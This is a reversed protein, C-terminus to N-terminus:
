IYSPITLEFSVGQKKFHEKQTANLQEVLSTVLQTGMSKKKKRPTNDSEIANNKTEKLMGIGNDQYIISYHNENKQLSISIINENESSPFAYKLSNTIWENLILGLPIAKDVNIRVKPITINAQIQNEKQYLRFLFQQLEKIYEDLEVETLLDTQYLKEHILTMTRIRSQVDQIAHKATPEELRRAQISLLSGIIQLNNKVRHHLESLLTQIANNKTELLQKKKQNQYFLVALGSLLLIILGIFFILIRNFQKEKQIETEKQQNEKKLTQNEFEKQQNGFKAEMTALQNKSEENFLSDRIMQYEKQHFFAKEFNNQAAYIDALTKHATQLREANQLEKISKYGEQAYKLAELLQNKELYLNALNITTGAVGSKSNSQIFIKRAKQYNILASDFQQQKKFVSAMGNYTGAINNKNTDFDTELIQIAERFSLLAKDFQGTDKYIIAINNSILAVFKMQKQAKLITKSEQYYDLAKEFNGIKKYVIGLNSYTKAIELSDNLMQNLKLSALYVEVAKDYKAQNQYNLGWNALTVAQAKTDKVEEFLQLSKQYGTDAAFYNDLIMYALAENYIAKAVSAKDEMKQSLLKAEKAYFLASDANKMSLRQANKLLMRVQISDQKEQGFGLFPLSLFLYFFVSAILRALFLNHKM